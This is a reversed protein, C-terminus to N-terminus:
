VNGTATKLNTRIIYSYITKGEIKEKEKLKDEDQHVNSFVVYYGERLGESKLYEALQKKGAKYYSNDTYRKTEIIYEKNKYLILIDVRGRGTPVEVLVKGGLREIFFYIYGDLSYHWASEKLNKVDFARFGRKRVYAQYNDM